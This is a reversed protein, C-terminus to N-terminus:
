KKLVMQHALGPVPIEAVTRLSTQDLVWIKNKEASSIYIKGAGRVAALHYPAPALPVTRIKGTEIEIAALKNTEQAAVFLTAGDDSLDLGHIGGGVTYTRVAQGRGLDILSVTGGDANNVFLSKGNPSMVMHEPSKGVPITKRVTWTATDIESVTGDGANSVFLRKGGKGAVAYNPTSGTKVTTVLKLSKMDIVSVSDENPHTVVAYRDDSGIGVHHVAGPVSIRRIVANQTVDLVSVFSVSGAKRAKAKPQKSHHAEHDAASVAAPKPPLSGAGPDLEAYSGAVLYRGGVLGALGHVAEIGSIKGIIKDRGADIRLVEGTDGTPVFMVAGADAQQAAGTLGLFVIVWFYTFLPRAM